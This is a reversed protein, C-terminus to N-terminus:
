SRDRIIATSEIEVLLAPRSESLTKLSGAIVSSEHGEVDIKILAINKFAYSDLTKLAVPQDRTRAFGDHEVSASADHEVGADDIPIHLSASGTRDSLAVPHLAVRPRGRTWADLVALCTPNPEFIEVVAGLKWLKFAYIGRNGGVDIVHDGPRVLHDLMAMEPELYGRVRDLWFKIPVQASKPVLDRLLAKLGIAM